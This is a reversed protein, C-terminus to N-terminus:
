CYELQLNLVHNYSDNVFTFTKGTKIRSLVRGKSAAARVNIIFTCVCNYRHKITNQGLCLKSTFLICAIISKPNEAQPCEDAGELSLKNKKLGYFYLLLENLFVALQQLLSLDTTSRSNSM